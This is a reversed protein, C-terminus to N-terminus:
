VASRATLDQMEFILKNCLRDTQHSCCTDRTRSSRYESKDAEDCCVIVLLFVAEYLRLNQPMTERQCGRFLYAGDYFFVNSFQKVLSSQQIKGSYSKYYFLMPFVPQLSCCLIPKLVGSKSHKWAEISKLSRTFKFFPFIAVKVHFYFKWKSTRTWLWDAKPAQFSLKVWHSAICKRSGNVPLRM